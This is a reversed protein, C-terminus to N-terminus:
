GQQLRVITMCETKLDEWNGAIALLCLRAKHRKVPLMTGFVVFMAAKECHQPGWIMHGYPLVPAGGVFAKNATVVIYRSKLEEAISDMNGGADANIGALACRRVNKLVSEDQESRVTVNPAV